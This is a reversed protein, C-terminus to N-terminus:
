QQGGSNRCQVPSAVQTPLPVPSLAQMVGWTSPPLRRM